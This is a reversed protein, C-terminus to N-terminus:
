FLDMSIYNSIFHTIIDCNEDVILEATLNKILHVNRQGKKYVCEQEIVPTLDRILRVKQQRRKIFITKQCTARRLKM